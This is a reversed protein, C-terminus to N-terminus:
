SVSSTASALIQVVSVALLIVLVFAFSMAAASASLTLRKLTDKMEESYLKYIERFSSALDGVKEGVALLDCKDGDLIGYREFADCVSRGDLIDTKADLFKELIAKNEISTQALELADSV